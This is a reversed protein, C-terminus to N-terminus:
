FTLRLGFQLQRAPNASNITGFGASGENTSPNGWNTHNFVNFADGQFTLSMGERPLHFRKHVSIDWDNYGPGLINATPANGVRFTPAAVFANPNFWCKTGSPCIYNSYLPGAVMDTRRTYSFNGAGVPQNATGTLPAGTQARTIGGVEWGGLAVEAIGGRHRFFPFAYNYTLVLIHQRDFSLRGYDFAHWTVVRGDPLTCIFACEPEPNDGIGSTNGLARSWTYSVTGVFDGKRKSAFLQFANYSSNSDSRYQNIDAYGIFPREQNTKLSPNANVVEFAPVNINPRRVEHRGQNGVYALEFLVGHPLERQLSLSYQMSRAQKFHPDVANM